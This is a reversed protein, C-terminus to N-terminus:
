RPGGSRHSRYGLRAVRRLIASPYCPSHRRRPALISTALHNAPSRRARGHAVENENRLGNSRLSITPPKDRLTLVPRPHGRLRSLIRLPTVRSHDGLPLWPIKM